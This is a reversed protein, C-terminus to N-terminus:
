GYGPHPFGPTGYGQQGTMGAAARGSYGWAQSLTAAPLHHYGVRPQQMHRCMQASPAAAPQHQGPPYSYQPPLLPVHTTQLPRLPQLQRYYRYGSQMEPKWSGASIATAASEQMYMAQNVPVQPRFAAQISRAPPRSFNHQGGVFNLPATSAPSSFFNNTQTIRERVEALSTTLISINNHDRRFKAEELKRELQEAETELERLAWRRQSAWLKKQRRRERAWPSRQRRGASKRSPTEEQYPGEVFGGAASATNQSVQFVPQSIPSGIGYNEMSSSEALLRLESEKPRWISSNYSHGLVPAPGIGGLNSSIDTSGAAESNIRPGQVNPGVLSPLWPFESEDIEEDPGAAHIQVGLLFVFFIVLFKM